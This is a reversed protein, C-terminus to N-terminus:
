LPRADWVRATHDISGSVLRHGDPSFTVCLTSATHGRLTLVELGTEADWLKVTRDNSATAIRRGDPSFAISLVTGTHGILTFVVRRSTADIVRVDNPAKDKDVQAVRLGDPSKIAFDALRNFAEDAPEAGPAALPQVEEGTEPNWFKKDIDITKRLKTVTGYTTKPLRVTVSSPM